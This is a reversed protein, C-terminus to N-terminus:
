WLSYSVPRWDSPLLNDRWQQCTIINFIPFYSVIFSSLKSTLPCCKEHCGYPLLKGHDEGLTLFFVNKHWRSGKPKRANGSLHSVSKARSLIRNLALNTLSCNLCKSLCGSNVSGMRNLFKLWTLEFNSLHPICIKTRWQASLLM